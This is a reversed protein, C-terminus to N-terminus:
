PYNGFGMLCGRLSRVSPCMSEYKIQAVGRVPTGPQTSQQRGRFDRTVGLRVEAFGVLLQPSGSPVNGARGIPDKLVGLENSCGKGGAPGFVSHEGGPDHPSGQVMQDVPQNGDM